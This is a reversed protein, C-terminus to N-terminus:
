IREPRTGKSTDRPVDDGSTDTPVDYFAVLEEVGIIVGPRPRPDHIVSGSDTVTTAVDEKKREGGM